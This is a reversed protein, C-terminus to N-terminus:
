RRRVDDGGLCGRRPASPVASGRPRDHRGGFVLNPPAESLEGRVPAAVAARLTRLRLREEVAKQRTVPDVALANSRPEFLPRAAPEHIEEPRADADDFHLPRALGAAEGVMTLLKEPVPLARARRAHRRRSVDHEAGEMAELHPLRTSQIGLRASGEIEDVEVVVEVREVEEDAASRDEAAASRLERAVGDHEDRIEIAPELFPLRRLKGRESIEDELAHPRHEGFVQVHERRVDEGM